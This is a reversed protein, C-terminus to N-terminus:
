IARWCWALDVSTSDELTEIGVTGGGDEGYGNPVSNLLTPDVPPIPLEDLQSGTDVTPEPVLGLIAPSTPPIPLISLVNVFVVPNGQADFDGTRQDAFPVPSPYVYEFSFEDLLYQTDWSMGATEGAIISLTYQLSEPPSLPTWATSGPFSFTPGMPRLRRPGGTAPRLQSTVGHGRTIPTLGSMPTPTLRFTARRLNSAARVVTNGRFIPPQPRAPRTPTRTITVLVVPIGAGTAPPQIQRFVPPLAGWRVPQSIRTRSPRSPIRPLVQGPGVRVTAMLVPSQPRGPPRFRIPGVPAITTGAGRLGGPVMGRTPPRIQRSGFPAARSLIPTRPSVPLHLWEPPTPVPAPQRLVFNQAASPARRVTPSFRLATSQAVRPSVRPTVPGPGTPVGAGPAGPTWTPAPWPVPGVPRIPWCARQRWM